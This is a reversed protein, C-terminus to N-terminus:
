RFDNIKGYFIFTIRENDMSFKLLRLRKILTITYNEM